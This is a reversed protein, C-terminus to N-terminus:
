YQEGPSNEIPEKEVQYKSKVGFILPLSLFSNRDGVDILKEKFDTLKNLALCKFM